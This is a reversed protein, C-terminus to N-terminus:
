LCKTEFAKILCKCLILFFIREISSPWCIYLFFRNLFLFFFNLFTNDNPLSKTLVFFFIEKILAFPYFHLPLQYLICFFIPDLVISIAHCHSGIFITNNSVDIQIFSFEFQFPLYPLKFRCIVWVYVCIKVYMVLFILYLLFPKFLLCM